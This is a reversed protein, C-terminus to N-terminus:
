LILIIIHYYVLLKGKFGNIISNQSPEKKNIKKSLGSEGNKKDLSSASASLSDNLIGNNISSIVGVPLQRNAGGRSQKTMSAESNISKISKNDENLKDISSSSSEISGNLTSKLSSIKNTSIYEYRNSDIISRRSDDTKYCNSIPNNTFKSSKSWTQEKENDSTKPVPKQLSSRASRNLTTEKTTEQEYDDMTNLNTIMNSYYNFNQNNEHDHVIKPSNPDKNSKRHLHPSLKPSRDNNNTDISKGTIFSKQYNSSNTNFTFNEQRQLPSSPSHPSNCNTRKLQIPSNTNTFNSKESPKSFAPDNKTLQLNDSSLTRNNLSLNDNNSNFDTHFETQDM